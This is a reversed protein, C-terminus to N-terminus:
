IIVRLTKKRKSYIRANKCGCARTDTVRESRLPRSVVMRSGKYGLHVRACFSLFFIGVLSLRRTYTVVVFFVRAREAFIGFPPCVKTLRCCPVGNTRDARSRPNERTHTHTNGGRARTHTRRTRVRLGAEHDIRIKRSRRYAESSPRESANSVIYLPRSAPASLNTIITTTTAAAAAVCRRPSPTSPARPLDCLLMRNVSLGVSERTRRHNYKTIM